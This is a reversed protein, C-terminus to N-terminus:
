FSKLSKYCTSEELLATVIPNLCSSYDKFPFFPNGPLQLLFQRPFFFVLLDWTNMVKQLVGLIIYFAKTQTSITKVVPETCQKSLLWPILLSLYHSPVGYHRVNRLVPRIVCYHISWWVILCIWNRTEIKCLQLWLFCVYKTLTVTKNESLRQTTVKNALCKWIGQIFISSLVTLM